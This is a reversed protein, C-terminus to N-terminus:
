RPRALRDLINRTIQEVVRDRGQLGRAWHTCGCTFVTGGRDYTGMVAHGPQQLERGDGYLAAGTFGLSGDYASLGAPATAAIEFSDPTGDRGTPVPLGDRWELECGDAEYQVIEDKVGVEDEQQLGTDAFIWHDPRHVTYGGSADRFQDFFRTYGGFSFSIGTLLNEPRNVLRHSWLTSLQSLDGDPYIPDEEYDLKWCVLARGDDESRVQWYVNNGSFFAVNGGNGIFRELNDRMPASWYEDHGVSLVLAYPDLLEPHFELDSNVAYDIAYGEGEAWSVFPHEFNLWGNEGASMANYVDIEGDERRYLHYALPGKGFPDTMVWDNEGGRGDSIAANPTLAISNIKHAEAQRQFEERFAPSPARLIPEDTFRDPLSFMFIGMVGPLRAEPRDFSVRHAPGDPGRYLNAGGFTNYANYTNTTLQILIRTDRGPHAPRVVFSAASCSGDNAKLWVSYYGSRWNAPIAVQLAPPWDCGQSPANSPVPHRTGPLGDQQWVSERRRGLRAIEVSFSEATTSVHLPVSEGPAVSLRGAYGHIFANAEPM